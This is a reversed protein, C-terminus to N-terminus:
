RAAPASASQGAPRPVFKALRDRFSRASVYGRIRDVVKGDPAVVITTPYVDVRYRSIMQDDRGADLKLPVFSGNILSVVNQNSLSDRKMKTCYGCSASTVFVLMPRENKAALTQAKSVDQQWTVTEAALTTTIGLTCCFACTMIGCLTRTLTRKTSKQM